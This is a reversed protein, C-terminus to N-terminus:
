SGRSRRRRDPSGAQDDHKREESKGDGSESPARWGLRLGGDEVDVDLDGGARRAAARALALRWPLGRGDVWRNLRDVAAGAGCSITIACAQGPGADVVPPGSGGTGRARLEAVLADAAFRLLGPDGSARVPRRAAIEHELGAADAAEAVLEVLDAREPAAPALEAYRQLFELQEDIRATAELALDALERNDDGARAAELSAFTKITSMPNRIEHAFAALLAEVGAEDAARLSASDAAGAATQVDAGSAADSGRRAPDVLPVVVARRPPDTRPPIGGTLACGDDSEAGLPALHGPAFRLDAASLEIADQGDAARAALSRALVAELELVNGPWDAAELLRLADAALTARGIRLRAASAALLEGALPAIDARRERLPALRLSNRSLVAHLTASLRRDELAEEPDGSSTVIVLPQAGSDLFQEIAHQADTTRRDVEPLFAARRGPGAPAALGAADSWVVLEAGDSRAIAAAVQAAGTGPEGVIWIAGGLRRTAALAAASSAALRPAELWREVSAPPSPEGDMMARVTGRLLAPDIPKEIIRPSGGTDPLRGGREVLLLVPIRTPLDAPAPGTVDVIALAAEAPLADRSCCTVARDGLAARVAAETAATADVLAIRAM